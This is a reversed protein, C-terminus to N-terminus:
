ELKNIANITNSILHMSGLTNKIQLQFCEIKQLVCWGFVIVFILFSKETLVRVLYNTHSLKFIIQM